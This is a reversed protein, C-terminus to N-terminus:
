MSACHGPAFSACCCFSFSSAASSLLPLRIRSFTVAEAAHGSADVCPTSRGANRLTSPPPPPPPPPPAGLALRPPHPPPAWGCQRRPSSARRTPRKLRALEVRRASDTHRAVSPVWLFAAQLPPMKTGAVHSETSASRPRRRKSFGRGPASDAHRALEAGVSFAAQLPPMKTGAVHSETSASRPRRRKSFGRGPASDTHRALEAGVSFAAQLPPM